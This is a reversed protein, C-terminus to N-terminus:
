VCAGYTVTTLMVDWGKTMAYQASRLISSVLRTSRSCLGLLPAKGSTYTHGSSVATRRRITWQADEGIYAVSTNAVCACARPQRRNKDNTYKNNIQKAHTNGDGAM